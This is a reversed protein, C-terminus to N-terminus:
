SDEEKPLEDHADDKPTRRLEALEGSRALRARVVNRNVGLLRATESQNYHCYRFVENVTTKEILQDLDHVREDCLARIARGLLELGNGGQTAPVQIAKEPEHRVNHRVPFRLKASDIAGGDLGLMTRHIVNELERVNGPWPYNVLAQEADPTLTGGSYNLQRSYEKIFYRALPIIDGPRESLRLIDLTVVNIRYYLDERFKGSSVLAEVESTTSALVRIDIAIGKHGGLRLVEKDKLVRLLKTQIPINLDNIEDLYLTGGNAEEFRGTQTGFAGPFARNEHGFLEADILMESFAGCTVTVFPGHRRLSRSHIYRAILEKGTGTKGSILVSADSPAIQEIEALLAKSHPDEFIWDTTPIRANSGPPTPWLSSISM